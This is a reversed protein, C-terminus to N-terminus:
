RGFSNKKGGPLFVRKPPLSFLLLGPLLQLRRWEVQSREGEEGRRSEEERRRRMGEEGGRGRRVEGMGKVRRTENEGGRWDGGRKSEEEGDRRREEGVGKRRVM